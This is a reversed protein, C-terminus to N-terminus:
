VFTMNSNGSLSGLRKRIDVLSEVTLGFELSGSLSVRDGQWSELGLDGDSAM